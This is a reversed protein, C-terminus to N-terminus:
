KFHKRKSRLISKAHNIIALEKTFAELINPNIANFKETIKPSNKIFNLINEANKLEEIKFYHSILKLIMSVIRCMDIDLIGDIAEPSKKLYTSLKEFAQTKTEIDKGPKNNVDFVDGAIMMNIIFRIYEKPSPSLYKESYNILRETEDDTMPNNFTIDPPNDNQKQAVYLLAKTALFDIWAPRNRDMIALLNFKDGAKTSLLHELHNIMSIVKEEKMGIKHCIRIIRKCIHLVCVYIIDKNDKFSIQQFEKSIFGFAELLLVPDNEITCHYFAFMTYAYARVVHSTSKNRDPETRAIELIDSKFKEGTLKKTICNQMLLICKWYRVIDAGEGCIIPAESNTAEIEFHEFYKGIDNAKSDFDTLMCYMTESLKYQFLTIIVLKNRQKLKAEIVTDLKELIKTATEFHSHQNTFSLHHLIAACVYELLIEFKSNTPQNGLYYDTIPKIIDPVLDFYCFIFLTDIIFFLLEEREHTQQSYDTSIRKALIELHKTM